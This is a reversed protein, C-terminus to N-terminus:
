GRSPVCGSGGEEVRAQRWHRAVEVLLGDSLAQGSLSTGSARFTLPIRRARSLRFLQQIEEVSRTLVVAQPVLRYCSADSAFAIRDIARTLVREAPVVAQLQALFEADVPTVNIPTPAM